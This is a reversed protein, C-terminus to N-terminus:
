APQLAPTWTPAHAPRTMRTDLAKPLGADAPVPEAKGAAVMRERQEFFAARKLRKKLSHSPNDPTPGRYAAEIRSEARQPMAAPRDGWAFAPRASGATVAGAMAPAVIPRSVNAAPPTLPKASAM